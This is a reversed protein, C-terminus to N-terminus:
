GIKIPLPEIQAVIPDYGLKKLKRDLLRPLKWDGTRPASLTLGFRGLAPTDACPKRAGAQAERPSSRRM